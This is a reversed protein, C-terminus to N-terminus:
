RLSARLAAGPVQRASPRTARPRQAASRLAQAPSRDAGSDRRRSTVAGAAAGTPSSAPPETATARGQDAPQHLDTVCAPIGTRGQHVRLLTHSRPGPFDPELSLRPHPCLLSSVQLLPAPPPHPRWVGLGAPLLRRTADDRRSPQSRHEPGRRTRQRFEGTVDSGADGDRGRWGSGPALLGGGGRDQDRQSSANPSSAERTPAPLSKM